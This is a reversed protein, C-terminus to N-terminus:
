TFQKEVPDSLDLDEGEEKAFLASSDFMVKDVVLIFTYGLFMLFEPLPFFEEDEAAPGGKEKKLEIYGNTQEPMIHVLAIALFVGAAFSNAIGMVAVNTRFSKSWTPINGM